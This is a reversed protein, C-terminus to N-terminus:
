RNADIITALETYDHTVPFHPFEAAVNAPPRFLVGLDAAALMGTDNYSDGISLVRFALGRLARVAETKGDPLRLRYGTLMGGSDVELMNCFLTPEGLKAMLPRAFEYFTDSLIILPARERVWRLYEVAGPLPDITAIVAQIDALTLGHQRLIAIRGRMLQDYDPIDRTTLRLAAIGTKEAVAIWIEPVLVGELDTTVLLPQPM